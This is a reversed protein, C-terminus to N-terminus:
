QRYALYFQRFTDAYQRFLPRNSSSLAFDIANGIIARKSVYHVLYAQDLQVFNLVDDKCPAIHMVRNAGTLREYSIKGEQKAVVKIFSYGFFDDDCDKYNIVEGDLMKKLLPHLNFESSQLYEPKVAPPEHLEIISKKKPVVPTLLDRLVEQQLDLYQRMEKNAELLLNITNILDNKDNPM